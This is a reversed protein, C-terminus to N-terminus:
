LWRCRNHTSWLKSFGKPATRYIDGETVYNRELRNKRTLFGRDVVLLIMSYVAHSWSSTMSSRSGDVSWFVAPWFTASQACLAKSWRFPSPSQLLSKSCTKACARGVCSTSASTDVHEDWVSGTFYTSHYAWVKKEGLWSKWKLDKIRKYEKRNWDTEYTTMLSTKKEGWKRQSPWAVVLAGGHQHCAGHSQPPEQGQAPIWSHNWANGDWGHVKRPTVCPHEWIKKVCRKFHVTTALLLSM